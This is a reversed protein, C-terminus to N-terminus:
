RFRKSFKSLSESSSNPKEYSPAKLIAQALNIDKLTKKKEELGAIGGSMVHLKRIENGLKVMVIVISRSKKMM